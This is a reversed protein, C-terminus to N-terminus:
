SGGDDAGVGNRKIQQCLISIIVVIVVTVLRKMHHGGAGRQRSSEAGFNLFGETAVNNIGIAAFAGGVAVLGRFVVAVVDCLVVANNLYEVVIVMRDGVADAMHDAGIKPIKGVREDAVVSLVKDFHMVPFYRADHTTFAFRQNMGVSFYEGYVIKRM